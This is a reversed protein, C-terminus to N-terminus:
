SVNLSQQVMPYCQSMGSNNLYARVYLVVFACLAFFRTKRSCLRTIDKSENLQTQVSMHARLKLHLCLFISSAM